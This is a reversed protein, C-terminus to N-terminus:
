LGVFIIPNIDHSGLASKPGAVRQLINSSSSSFLYLFGKGANSANGQVAVHAALFQKDGETSGLNNYYEYTEEPGILPSICTNLYFYILMSICSSHRKCEVDYNVGNWALSTSAMSPLSQKNNTGPFLKAVMKLEKSVQEATCNRASDSGCIGNNEAEKKYTRIVSIQHFLYEQVMWSCRDTEQTFPDRLRYKQDMWNLLDICKGRTYICSLREEASISTSEDSHYTRGDLVNMLIVLNCLTVVDLFSKFEQLDPVHDSAPDIKAM